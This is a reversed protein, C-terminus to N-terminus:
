EYCAERPVYSSSTFWESRTKDNSVQFSVLRRRYYSTYGRNKSSKFLHHSLPYIRIDRRQLHIFFFWNHMRRRMPSTFLLHTWLPTRTCLFFMPWCLYRSVAEGSVVWSSTPWTLHTQKMKRKPFDGFQRAHIRTTWQRLPPVIFTCSQKQGLVAWPSSLFTMLNM